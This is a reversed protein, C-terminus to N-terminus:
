EYFADIDIKGGRFLTQLEGGLWDVSEDFSAAGSPSPMFAMSALLLM